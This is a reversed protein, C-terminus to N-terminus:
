KGERARFRFWAKRAAYLIRGHRGFRKGFADLGRQAEEALEPYRHFQTRINWWCEYAQGVKWLSPLKRARAYDWGTAAIPEVLADLDHTKARKLMGEGVSRITELREEAERRGEGKVRMLHTSALLWDKRRMGERGLLLDLGEGGDKESEGLLQLYGFQWVYEDVGFFVHAKGPVERYMARRGAGDLALFASWAGDKRVYDVEGTALYFPHNGTKLLAGDKIGVVNPPGPCIVWSAEFPGRNQLGGSCLFDSGSSFGALYIREPDVNYDKRVRRLVALGYAIDDKEGRMQNWATKRGNPGAVICDVRKVFRAWVRHTIKGGRKSPHIAGHFDLVLPLPTKPDYSDPLALVFSAKVKGFDFEPLFIEKPEGGERHVERAPGVQFYVVDDVLRIKSLRVDGVVLETKGEQPWAVAEPRAVNSSTAPPLGHAPLLRVTTEPAIQEGNKGFKPPGVHFIALGPSPLDTFFGERRRNELLLYESGDPKLLIRYAEGAGFLIPRLALKQRRSPDIAVPKV